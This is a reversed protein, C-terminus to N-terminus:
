SCAAHLFSCSPVPSSCTYCFLVRLLSARRTVLLRLRPVKSWVGLACYASFLVRITDVAGIGDVLRIASM